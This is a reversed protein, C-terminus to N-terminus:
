AIRATLALEDHSTEGDIRRWLRRTGVSWAGAALLTLGALVEVVTGPSVITSARGAALLSVSMSFTILALELSLVRGRIGDPSLQQLGYGTMTAQTGGGLHAVLVLGAAAWLGPAAPFAAYAAGFLAMAAALAPFLRRLEGGIFARAAFPGLLSGLGRAAYLIGIAAEPPMAGGHGTAFVRTAFVPLLGIMGTGLGFLIKQVLLAVVRGDSRAFAVGERLDRLPRLRRADGSMREAEPEARARRPSAEGRPASPSRLPGLRDKVGLILAASVLFSAANAVFAVDRGALGAV